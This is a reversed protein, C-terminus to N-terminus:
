RPNASLNSVRTTVPPPASSAPELRAECRLFLGAEPTFPADLTFEGGVFEVVGTAPQWLLQPGPIASFWDYVRTLGEYGTGTAPRDTVAAHFQAGNRSIAARFNEVPDTPSSGALYESLDSSGDGDFDTTANATTLNGFRSNEWNDPLGDGDSDAPATEYTVVLAPRSGATGEASIFRKAPFASEDDKLLWGFNTAPNNLWNQVDAIMQPSTWQYSGIIGVSTTASATAAFTGGPTSWATGPFIAFTWTADGAQAPAGNGGPTGANSAGEGWNELLRHLSFDFADNTPTRDMALTLTASTITSGAPIASLDFSLLARRLNDNANRGSYLFPGQGNSLQAFTESFITNDEVADLTVTTARSSLATFGLFAAFILATTKMTPFTGQLYGAPEKSSLYFSTFDVCM